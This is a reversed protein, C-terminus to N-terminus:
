YVLVPKQRLPNFIVQLSTIGEQELCLLGEEVTEVSAGFSQILEGEKRRRLWDFIEGRRMVETHICHLQLLDLSRAGLRELSGEVSRRMASESYHDPFVDGARGFKTAV